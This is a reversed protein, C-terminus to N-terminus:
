KGLLKTIVEVAKVADPAYADAGMEKAWDETVPGGGFIVKYKDRVGEMEMYETIVKMNSATFTMLASAGIVQANSKEAEDIFKSPEVEVGLDIVEFGATTLMIGVINKGINHIDGKVTGLVVTGKQTAKLDEKSIEKKLITVAANMADGAMMLQPLYAEGKEFRNGMEAIAPSLADTIAKYPDMKLELIKEAIEKAKDEDCDTIAQRLQEMVTEEM